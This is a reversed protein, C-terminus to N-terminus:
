LLKRRKANREVTDTIQKGSMKEVVSLSCPISFCERSISVRIEGDIGIRENGKSNGKVVSIIDGYNSDFWRRVVADRQRKNETWKLVKPKRITAKKKITM